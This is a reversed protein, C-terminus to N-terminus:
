ISRLFNPFVGYKFAKANDSRFERLKYDTKSEAWILWEKFAAKISEGSGYILPLVFKAGSHDDTIILAVRENNVGAINFVMIDAHILGLPFKSRQNASKIFQRRKQKGKM